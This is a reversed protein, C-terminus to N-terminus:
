LNSAQELFEKCQKATVDQVSKLKIHRRQKGRGNLINKPDLLRAGHTFELSVHEAYTFYGCCQTDSQGSIREVIIGGYKEIMKADPMVDLIIDLLKQTIETKTNDDM